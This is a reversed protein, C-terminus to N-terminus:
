FHNDAKPIIDLYATKEHLSLYSKKQELEKLMKNTMKKPQKAKEIKDNGTISVWSKTALKIQLNRYLTNVNSYTQVHLHLNNLISPFNNSVDYKLLRIAFFLIPLRIIIITKTFDIKFIEYLDIIQKKKFSHCFSVRSFVSKWIYWVWHDTQKKQVGNVNIAKCPISEGKKKIKNELKILWLIWYITEETKSDKHLLYKEIVELVIKLENKTIIKLLNTGGIKLSKAASYLYNNNVDKPNITPLTMQKQHSLTVVSIMEIVFNRVPQCNLTTRYGLVEPKNFFLEDLERNESVNPFHTTGANKEPLNIQKEFRKYRELLRSGINPNHIHVHSGIIEILINIVQQLYGSCHLEIGTICAAELKSQLVANRFTNLIQSKSEGTVTLTKIPSPSFWYLYDDPVTSVISYIHGVYYQNIVNQKVTNKNHSTNIPRDNFQMCEGLNNPLPTFPAPISM